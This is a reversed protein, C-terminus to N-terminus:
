GDTTRLLNVIWLYLNRVSLTTAGQIKQEHEDTDITSPERSIGGEVVITGVTSSLWARFAWLIAERKAQVLCGTGGTLLQGKTSSSRAWYWM